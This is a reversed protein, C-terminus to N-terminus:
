TSYRCGSKVRLAYYILGALVATTVLHEEPKVVEPAVGSFLDIVVGGATTAIL